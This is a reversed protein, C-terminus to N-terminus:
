STNRKEVEWNNRLGRVDERIEPAVVENFDAGIKKAAPVINKYYLPNHLFFQALEDFGRGDEGM